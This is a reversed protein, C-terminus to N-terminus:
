GESRSRDGTTTAHQLIKESFRHMGKLTTNRLTEITPAARARSAHYADINRLRDMVKEIFTPENHINVEWDAMDITAAMSLGREDYSLHISPTGFAICPLFAHLRYGINFRASRLADVYHEVNDFYAYPVDPFGAAFELDAYDHCVLVIRNSFEKRLTDVLARVDGAVRWQMAPPVSMRKPHRVSILIPGNDPRTEHNEELFLTPCGGVKVDECGMSQLIDQTAVDRVLAVDSNRVLQRIKSIPMADTRDILGGQMSYIRGHSLGYLMLPPSLADLATQDITLQGNEFLNGGGIVVGNALRNADYVQRSTIGGFQPGELAPINIIRTDSGLVKCFLESTAKYIIDNGINRTTPRVCFLSTTM